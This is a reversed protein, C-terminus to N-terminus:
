PGAQIGAQVPVVFPAIGHNTSEMNCTFLQQQRM